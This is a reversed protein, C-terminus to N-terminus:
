LCNKSTNFDVSFGDLVRKVVSLEISSSTTSTEYMTKHFRSKSHINLDFSPARCENNRKHRCVEAGPQRHSKLPRRCFGVFDAVSSPLVTWQSSSFPNVPSPHLKPLKWIGISSFFRVFLPWLSIFRPLAKYYRATNSKFLSDKCLSNGRFFIMCM